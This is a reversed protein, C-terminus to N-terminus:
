CRNVIAYENDWLEFSSKHLGGGFEEATYGTKLSVPKGNVLLNRHALMTTYGEEGFADTPVAVFPIYKHTKILPILKVGTTVEEYEEKQTEAMIQGVQCKLRLKNVVVELAPLEYDILGLPRSNRYEFVASLKDYGSKLLWVRNSYVYGSGSNIRLRYYGNAPLGTPPITLNIEAVTSLYANHIAVTGIGAKAVALTDARVLDVGGSLAPDDLFGLLCTYTEDPALIVSAAGIQFTQQMPLGLLHSAEPPTTGFSLFSYRNLLSM